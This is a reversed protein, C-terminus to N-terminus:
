VALKVMQEVTRILLELDQPRSLRHDGDKVLTMTVNDAPLHELLKLALQYPVDPDAQGQLIHVPSYTDIPGTLVRNQRGDEFLARTFVNPEDSYESMEEFRGKEELDRKQVETLEPEMLEFTFDPAPALLILGAVRHSEASQQLEQIMRLAIWGGMSSGILIQPGDTIQRFVALSETLWRSITGDVFKGGSEGHGSYDHRTCAHGNDAAWKDIVEAKTGIMDSRYGGLWVLGPNNGSRARVAIDAGGVTITQPANM